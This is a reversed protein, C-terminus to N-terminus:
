GLLAQAALLAFRCSCRQGPRTARAHVGTNCSRLSCSRREASHNRQADSEGRRSEARRHPRRVGARRGAMRLGAPVERGSAELSSCEALLLRGSPSAADRREKARYPRTPVWHSHQVSSARLHSQRPWVCVLTLDPHSSSRWRAPRVTSPRGCRRPTLWVWRSPSSAEARRAERRDVNGSRVRRKTRQRLHSFEPADGKPSRSGDTDVLHRRGSRSSAAPDARRRTGNGARGETVLGIATPGGGSPRGGARSLVQVVVVSFGPSVTRGEASLVTPAQSPTPLPDFRPLGRGTLRPRFGAPCWRAGQPRTGGRDEPNLRPMEAAQDQPRLDDPVSVLRCRSSLGWGLLEVDARRERGLRAYTRHHATVAAPGGGHLVLRRRCRACRRDSTLFWCWRRARWVPWGLYVAYLLSHRRRGTLM